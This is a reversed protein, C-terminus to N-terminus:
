LEVYGRVAHVAESYLGYDNDFYRKCTAKVELTQEGSYRKLKRSSETGLSAYLMAASPKYGFQENCKEAVQRNTSHRPISNYSAIIMEKKNM